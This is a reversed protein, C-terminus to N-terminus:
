IIQTSPNQKQRSVWQIKSKGHFVLQIKANLKSLYISYHIRVSGVTLIQLHIIQMEVLSSWAVKPLSFQETESGNEVKHSEMSQM